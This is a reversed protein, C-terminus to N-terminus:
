PGSAPMAPQSYRVRLGGSPRNALELRGGSHQAISRMIALGLGSGPTASGHELREFPELARELEQPPVGPGDDSIDINVRPVGGDGVETYVALDIRGGEPTYRLANDLGNRLLTYLQTPDALIPAGEDRAMGLDIRRREAVPMLDEIVQHLVQSPDTRRPAPGRGSQAHALSLLQEVVTRARALGQQMGALRNRADEGLEARAFNEAQLSLAAIPTRLEHAAYAVFRRERELLAALRDLLRNISALFSHIELPAAAIPLRDLRGEARGDLEAALKRVPLLARRVVWACLLALLPILALLPYLTRQAGDLAAETRVRTLQAVAVRGSRGSLVFVRWSRGGSEVQQMGDPLSRPLRPGAAPAAGDLREVHIRAEEDVDTGEPELVSPPLDGWRYALVAIQRLQADQLEMAERYGVLYSAGAATLAVLTVIATMSSWLRRLLSASAWTRLWRLPSM